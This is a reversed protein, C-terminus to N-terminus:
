DLRLRWISGSDNDHRSNGNGPSGSPRPTPKHGGTHFFEPFDIEVIELGM